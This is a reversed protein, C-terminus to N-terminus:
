WPHTALAAPQRDEAGLVGQIFAAKADTADTCGERDAVFADPWGGSSLRTSTACANIVRCHRGPACSSTGAGPVTSCSPCTRATRSVKVFLRRWPRKDAEPPVPEWRLGDLCCQAEAPRVAKRAAETVALGHEVDRGSLGRAGPGRAFLSRTSRRVAAPRTCGAPNGHDVRGLGAPDPAGEVVHFPKDFRVVETCCQVGGRLVAPGPHSGASWWSLPELTTPRFSRRVAHRPAPRVGPVHGQPGILRRCSLRPSSSDRAITKWRGSQGEHEFV